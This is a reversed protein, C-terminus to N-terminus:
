ARFVSEIMTSMKDHRRNKIEEEDLKLTGNALKRELGNFPVNDGYIIYNIKMRLAINNDRAYIRKSMIADINKDLINPTFNSYDKTPLRYTESSTSKISDYIIDLIDDILENQILEKFKTNMIVYEEHRLVTFYNGKILTQELTYNFFFEDIQSQSYNSFLKSISPHLPSLQQYLRGVIASNIKVGWLNSKTDIKDDFRPVTKEYLKNANDKNVLITRILDKNLEVCNDRLNALVRSSEDIKSM